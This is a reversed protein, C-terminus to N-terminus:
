FSSKLNIELYLDHGVKMYHGLKCEVNMYIINFSM